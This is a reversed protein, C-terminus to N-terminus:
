EIVYQWNLPQTEQIDPLKYPITPERLYTINTAYLRYSNMYHHQCYRVEFLSKMKINITM